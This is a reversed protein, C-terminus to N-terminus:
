ATREWMYVSKYPPLNTFATGSGKAETDVWDNSADKDGGSYTSAVIWGTGNGANSKWAGVWDNKKAWKVNHKHNPMNAVTLTTSARGGTSGAPYDTSQGVLFRGQIATWTGGIFTGPNTPRTSTYITGVPYLADIINFNEALAAITDAVRDNVDPKTLGMVDSVTAM